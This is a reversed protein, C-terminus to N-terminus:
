KFIISRMSLEDPAAKLFRRKQNTLRDTKGTGKAAGESDPRQVEPDPPDAGGAGGQEAWEM